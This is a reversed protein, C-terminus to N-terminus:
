IIYIIFFLILFLVYWVPTFPFFTAASTNDLASKGDWNETGTFNTQLDNTCELGDNYDGTIYYRYIYSDEAWDYHLGNCEDTCLATNGDYVISDTDLFECKKMLVGKPGRPGYVPFGDYAWGIQPSPASTNSYGNPNLQRLLCSPAIHCHYSDHESTSHCGCEDFSDGEMKVASKSYATASGYSEGGYPSYLWAGNFLIGIASGIAAMSLTVESEDYEPYAPISINRTYGVRRTTISTKSYGATFRHNPCNGFEIKRTHDEIKETYTYNSRNVYPNQCCEYSNKVWSACEMNTGDEGDENIDLTIDFPNAMCCSEASKSRKEFYEGPGCCHKGEISSQQLYIVVTTWLLLLRRTSQRRM